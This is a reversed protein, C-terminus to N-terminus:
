FNQKIFNEIRNIGVIIDKMSAAFSLRICDECGFVDGAVVALNYKDFLISAVDRGSKIEVDGVKEGYLRSVNVLIYLGGVPKLSRLYPLDSIRQVMYDRRRKLETINSEIIEDGGKLAALAAFQSVVNVNSTTHSQIKAMAKAIKKDALAYGIRWSTMSYTKSFSNIVVTRKKVEEGLSAVSTFQVKRSYIMKDYVEDSIIFLDNKCAFDAIAELESKTYVAGTPNNPSNIIIAKTKPTVVQKLEEPTIKYGREEKTYVIVPVGGALLVLEMYSQWYPASIIVEDSQGVLSFITNMLAQKAGNSIVANEPEYKVGYDAFFKDCLAERLELIGEVATYKPLTGNIAEVAAEKIHLPTPFDVEGTGLNIVDFGSINLNQAKATVKLSASTKVQTARESLIM